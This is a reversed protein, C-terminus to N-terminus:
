RGARAEALGRYLKSTVRLYGCGPVLRRVSDSLDHAGRLVVLAVPGQALALKVQADHRARMKEPAVEVKGATTFAPRLLHVLLPQSSRV